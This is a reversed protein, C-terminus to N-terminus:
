VGIGTLLTNSVPQSQQTAPPNVPSVLPAFTNIAPINVPVVLPTSPLALTPIVNAVPTSASTVDSQNGSQFATIIAALNPDLAPAQTQSAGSSVPASSIAPVAVSPLSAIQQQENALQSQIADSNAQANAQAIAANNQELRYILYAVAITAVVGGVTLAIEKKDLAMM